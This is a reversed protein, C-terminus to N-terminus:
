KVSQVAQNGAGVRSPMEVGLCRLRGLTKDKTQGLDLVDGGAM